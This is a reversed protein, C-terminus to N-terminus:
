RRILKKYRGGVCSGYRGKSGLRLIMELASTVHEAGMLGGKDVGNRIHRHTYTDTRAFVSIVLRSILFQQLHM